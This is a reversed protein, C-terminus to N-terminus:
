GCLTLHKIVGEKKENLFYAPTLQSSIEKGLIDKIFQSEEKCSRGKFGKTELKIEGQEDIKVITYKGKGMDITLEITPM